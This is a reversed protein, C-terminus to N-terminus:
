NTVESGSFMIQWKWKEQNKDPAKVDTRKIIPEPGWLGRTGIYILKRGQENRNPFPLFVLVEHVDLNFFWTTPSGKHSLPLSDAQCHLLHTRDRTQSSGAHQPDVLGTEWLQQAGTGCNSFGSYELAQAKCCSFGGCQSAWASCSANGRREVVLPFGTCCCLVLM